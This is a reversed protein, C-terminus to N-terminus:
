ELSSSPFVTTEIIVEPFNIMIGSEAPMDVTNGEEDKSHIYTMGDKEDIYFYIEVIANEVVANENDILVGQIHYLNGAILGETTLTESNSFAFKEKEEDNNYLYIYGNMENPNNTNITLTTKEPSITFLTSDSTQWEEGDSSTFYNGDEDIKFYLKDALIYGDAPATNELLYVQGPKLNQVAKTEDSSIWSDIKESVDGSIASLVIEAGTVFEKGSKIEINAEVTADLSIFHIGNENAYSEATSDDHGYITIGSILTSSYYGIAKESFATEPNQVTIKKLASCYSFANEGISALSEPFTIEELASCESFSSNGISVLTDPLTANELSDCYFFCYDSISTIGEAITLSIIKERFDYWPIDSTYEYTKITGGGAITLTGTESDFWWVASEGCKGDIAHFTFNNETSYTEAASGAYGYITSGAPLANEGIKTVNQDIIVSELNTAGSFANKGVSSITEGLSVTKIKEFYKAWPQKGDEYNSIAGTGFIHLTGTEEDFTWTASTGCSGNIPIFNFANDQAYTEATSGSLGYIKIGSYKYEGYYYGISKETIVTDAGLFIYEKLSSNYGFASEDILKVSAPIRVSSINKCYYFAQKGITTLGNPLSISELVDCDNFAQEGITTLGNPLSISKLADYDYFAKAGISTVGNEVTLSTITEKLESWPADSSYEYDEMAGTGMISLKGTKEDFYWVTSTGCTGNITRFKLSNEKSYTEAASGAYGYVTCGAPLANENIKTINQGIIITNLNAASSFANKGISSINDSLSIFKINEFHKAWPQKGEEYNSIAGTGYIHLIGTEEDFKWVASKGCVGNFAIFNLGNESAYTEAASGSFGYINVDSYLNYGSDSYYSEYYGVSHEGFATDSGLLIINKLSKCNILAADSLNTVSAPISIITLANCNNFAHEGITTVTDPIQMEKLASCGSFLYPSLEALGDPLTVSELASCGQFAKEGIKTVTSPIEASVLATDGAFASSNVSTIGEDIYVHQIEESFEEWPINGMFQMNGTGAILLSHSDKLYVWQLGDGFMGYCGNELTYDLKKEKALAEAEAFKGSYNEFANLDVDYWKIVSTSSDAVAWILHNGQVVPQISTDSLRANKIEKESRLVNGCEDLIVYHVSDFKDNVFKEWLVCYSGDELTVIKVQGAKETENCETLWVVHRDAVEGTAEDIREVGALDDTDKLTSDTLKVFVDYIDKKLENNYYIDSTYVKESKGAIAYTTKSKALGGMHTYTANGDIHHENSGYVGSCHYLVTYGNGSLYDFGVKGESVSYSNFNIGRREHADGMQIAAFGYETPIMTVGFSHSGQWSSITISEMTNTDIAAFDAGQHGNTWVTNFLCGLVGDKALINANGADFPYQAITRNIPLPCEAIMKGTLDYKVVVINAKEDTLATEVEDTSINQGWM